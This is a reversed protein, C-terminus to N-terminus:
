NKNDNKFIKYYDIEQYFVENNIIKDISQKEIGLDLASKCPYIKNDKIINLSSEYYTCNDCLEEPNDLDKKSLKEHQYINQHFFKLRISSINEGTYLLKFKIGTSIIKHIFEESTNDSIYLYIRKINHKYKILIDLEIEKDSFIACKYQSLWTEANYPADTYDLRLNVLSGESIQINSPPGCEPVVDIVQTHFSRGLHVPKNQDYPNNLNLLRLCESAVYDPFIEDVRKPDEKIAFSPKRYSYDPSILSQIREDGWYPKCTNAIVPGYLAVVPTRYFASVHTSFSDNGLHLTANKLIFFTQRLQTKGLLSETGKIKPDNKEGIQFIKINQKELEPKILKIVNEFYSYNKSAMGSGGHITIYKEAEMPYFLPEIHPQSIKCGATLAYNEILHM